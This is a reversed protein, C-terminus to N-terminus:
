LSIVSLTVILFWCCFMGGGLKSLLSPANKPSVLSM